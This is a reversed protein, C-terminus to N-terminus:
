IIQLLYVLWHIKQKTGSLDLSSYINCFFITSRNWNRYRNLIKESYGNIKDAIDSASQL